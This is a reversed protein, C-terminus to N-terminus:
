ALEDFCKASKSRPIVAVCISSREGSGYRSDIRRRKAQTVTKRARMLEDEIRLSSRSSVMPRNRSNWRIVIMLHTSRFQDGVIGSGCAVLARSASLAAWRRGPDSLIQGNSFAIAQFTGGPDFAIPSRGEIPSATGYESAFGFLFNYQPDSPTQGGAGCFRRRRPYLWRSSAARVARRAAISRGICAPAFGDFSRM